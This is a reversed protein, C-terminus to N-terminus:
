ENKEGKLDNIIEDIGNIEETLQKKYQELRKIKEKRSLFRHHYVGCCCNMGMPVNHQYAAGHCM